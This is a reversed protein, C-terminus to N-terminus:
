ADTKAIWNLDVQVYFATARIVAYILFSLNLATKGAATLTFETEPPAHCVTVTGIV